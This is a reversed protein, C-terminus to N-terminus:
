TRFPLWSCIFARAYVDSVIRHFIFLLSTIEGVAPQLNTCVNLGEGTRRGRQNLKAGSFRVSVSTM